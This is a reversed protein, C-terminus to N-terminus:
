SAKSSAFTHLCIRRAPCRYLCGRERVQPDAVLRSIRAGADHRETDLQAHVQQLMAQMQALRAFEPTGEQQAGASAQAGAQSLEHSQSAVGRSSGAPAARAAQAFQALVDAVSGVAPVPAASQVPMTGSSAPSSTAALAHATPVAPQAQLAAQLLGERTLGFAAAVHPLAQHQQLDGLQPLAPPLALPHSAVGLSPFGQLQMQLAAHQATLQSMAQQQSPLTMSPAPEQLEAAPPLQQQM